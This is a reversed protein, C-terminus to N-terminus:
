KYSRIRSSSLAQLWQQALFKHQADRDIFFDGSRTRDFLYDTFSTHFVTINDSRGRIDLVSHLARLALSVDGPSLGLLLEIFDPSTHNKIILIAALIPLVQDRNPNSHLIMFYLPDLTIFPSGSPQHDSRPDIGLVLRLQNQPNSFPLRVFRVTTSAYAFQGDSSRVLHRFDGISPWPDPFSVNRYKASRRIDHFERMYYRSIDRDPNFKKDLMIVRTADSLPLAGFAERIWAEPRSCVLFRLPFRPYQQYVSSIASLIRLQTDEDGCEDLGDIIILTPDEFTFHHDAAIHRACRKAVPQIVLEQFQDELRAGLISWDARLRDNIEERVLPHAVALGHAIALMLVSPHNRDADSLGM